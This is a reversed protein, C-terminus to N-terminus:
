RPLAPPHLTQYITRQRAVPLTPMSSPPIACSLTILACKPLVVVNPLHLQQGTAPSVLYRCCKSKILTTLAYFNSQHFLHKSLLVIMNMYLICVFCLAWTGNQLCCNGVRWLQQLWDCQWHLVSQHMIGHSHFTKSTTATCLSKTSAAIIEGGNCILSILIVSIKYCLSDTFVNM